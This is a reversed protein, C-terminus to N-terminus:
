QSFAVLDVLIHGAMIPWLTGFYFFWFCAVVNYFAAGVVAHPGQEWHALAFVLSVLITFEIRSPLDRINRYLLWPLGIFFISEVIGATFSSYLWTIKGLLGDPFVKTITFMGSPKGLLLWSLHSTWTFVIYGTVFVVLTAFLPSQWRLNSSDLGYHKPLIAAKKAIMVLLIVPLVIWQSVDVIWFFTPSTRALTEVYLGNVLWILAVPFLAFAISLCQHRSLHM